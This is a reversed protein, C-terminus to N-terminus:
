KILVALPSLHPKEPEHGYTYYHDSDSPPRIYVPNGNGADTLALKYRGNASLQECLKTLQWISIMHKESETVIFANITENNEGYIEIYASWSYVSNGIKSNVMQHTWEENLLRSANDNNITFWAQMFPTNNEQARKLENMDAIRFAGESFILGGSASINLDSDSYPLRNELQSPGYIKGNSSIAPMKMDISIQDAYGELEQEYMYNGVVPSVPCSVGVTEALLLSRKGEISQHLGIDAYSNATVLIATASGVHYPHRDVAKSRISLREVKFKPEDFITEKGFNIKDHEYNANSRMWIPLKESVIKSPIGTEKEIIVALGITTGTFITAILHKIFHRRTLRFEKKNPILENEAFENM